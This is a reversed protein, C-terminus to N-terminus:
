KSVKSLRCTLVFMALTSRSEIQWLDHNQRLASNPPFLNKEEPCNNHEKDYHEQEEHWKLYVYAEFDTPPQQARGSM